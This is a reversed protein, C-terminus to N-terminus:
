ETAEDWHAAIGAATPHMIQAWEADSIRVCNRVFSYSADTPRGNRGIYNDLRTRHDIKRSETLQRM